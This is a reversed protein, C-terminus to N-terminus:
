LSFVDVKEQDSRIELELILHVYRIGHLVM